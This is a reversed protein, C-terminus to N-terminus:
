SGGHPAGQTTTVVESGTVMAQFNNWGARAVQALHIGVFGVYGLTLAFHWFRAMQYGGFLTTLWWLQTPKLMALGTLVSGAGMLVVGTYAIRQAGNFKREPLPEKRIGLDHLMVQFAEAPTDRNPVLERWEGSWITYLVYILGNLAFFWGFLFHYGLGIALSGELQFREYFWQPFFHIPGIEYPDYAWYILLGSWLMIALLPANLWHTVRIPWPHKARLRPM